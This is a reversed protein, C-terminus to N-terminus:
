KLNGDKGYRALSYADCLDSSEFEEGWKKFVKLLMLDKHCQGKGTVFKKLTTPPCVVYEVDQRILQTCIYYHLGAQQATGRGNSSFSIGEVCCTIPEINQYKVIEHIINDGLSKIRIANDAKKDSSIIKSLIIKYDDDLIVLGTSNMSPDIGIFFGM